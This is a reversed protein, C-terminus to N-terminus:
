ENPTGGNFQSDLELIRRTLDDISDDEDGIDKILVNCPHRDYWDLIANRIKDYNM